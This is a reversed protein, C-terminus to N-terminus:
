ILHYPLYDRRYIFRCHMWTACATNLSTRVADIAINYMITTPKLDGTETALAELEEVLRMAEQWQGAKGCRRFRLTSQLYFFPISLDLSVMFM